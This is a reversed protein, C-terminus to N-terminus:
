LEPKISQFQQLTCAVKGVEQVDSFIATEPDLKDRFLISGPVALSAPSGRAGRLRRLSARCPINSRPTSQSCRISCRAQPDFPVAAPRTVRKFFADTPRSYSYGSSAATISLASHSTDTIFLLSSLLCRAASFELNTHMHGYIEYAVSEHPRLCVKGPTSAPLFRGICVLVTM